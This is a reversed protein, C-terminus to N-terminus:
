IICKVFYEERSNILPYNNKCYKAFLTCASLFLCLFVRLYEPLTFLRWFLRLIAYLQHVYNVGLTSVSLTFYGLFQPLKGFVDSTLTTAYLYQFYSSARQVFDRDRSQFIKMQSGKSEFNKRKRLRTCIVMCYTRDWSLRTSESSTSDDAVM